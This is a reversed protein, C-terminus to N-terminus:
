QFLARGFDMPRLLSSDAAVSLTDARASNRSSAKQNGWEKCTLCKKLM